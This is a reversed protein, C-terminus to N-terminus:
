NWESSKKFITISELWSFIKKINMVYFWKDDFNSLITKSTEITTMKDEVKQTRSEEVSREKNNM